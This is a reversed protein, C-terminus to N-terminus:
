KNLIELNNEGFVIKLVQEKKEEELELQLLVKPKRMAKEEDSLGNSDVYKNPYTIVDVVTMQFSTAIDSLQKLSLQVDGKFIRSMQSPTTDAYEAISAQTLGRDNMIKRINELISNIIPYDEKKM